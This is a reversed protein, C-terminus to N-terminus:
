TRHKVTPSPASRRSQALGMAILSQILCFAAPTPEIVPAGYRREIEAKVGPMAGCGLVVADCRDELILEGAVEILRAATRREDAMEVVPIDLSRVARLKGGNYRSTQQWTVYVDAPLVGIIGYHDAVAQATV